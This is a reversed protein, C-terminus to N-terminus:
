YYGVFSKLKFIFYKQSEPCVKQNQVHDVPIVENGKSHIDPQFTQVTFMFTICHTTFLSNLSFTYPLDSLFLCIM